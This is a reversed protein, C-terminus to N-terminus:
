CTLNNPNPQRKLTVLLGGSLLRLTAGDVYEVETFYTPPNPGPATLAPFYPRRLTAANFGLMEGVFNVKAQPNSVNCGTVPTTSPFNDVSEAEFGPDFKLSLAGNESVWLGIQLQIDVRSNTYERPQNAVAVAEFRRLDTFTGEICNAAGAPAIPRLVFKGNDVTGSLNVGNNLADGCVGDTSNVTATVDFRSLFVQTAPQLNTFQITTTFGASSWQGGLPTVIQLVALLGGGCAALGAAALGLAPINAKM